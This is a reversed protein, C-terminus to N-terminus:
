FNEASTLVELAEVLRQFQQFTRGVIRRFPEQTIGKEYLHDRLRPIPTVQVPKSPDTPPNAKAWDAIPEVKYLVNGGVDIQSVSMALRFEMLHAWYEADGIIEGSRVMAGLQQSLLATESTTLSRFFVRANGQLLDYKKEFRSVGITNMIFLQKDHDDITVEFAKDTPWSCRPCPGHSEPTMTQPEVVPSPQVPEPAPTTQKQKLAEIKSAVDTNGIMGAYNKGSPVPIPPAVPKRDDLVISQEQEPNRAARAASAAEGELIANRMVERQQGQVNAPIIADIEANKDAQQKDREVQSKYDALYERVEAQREPPLDEISVFSANVPKWGAALESDELRVAEREAIVEAQIEKLRIGLDGPIPDGDKWGAAQLQRRTYDSMRIEGTRMPLRGEGPLQDLPLAGAIRVPTPVSKPRLSENM